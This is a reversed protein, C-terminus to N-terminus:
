FSAYKDGDLSYIKGEIGSKKLRIMWHEASELSRFYVRHDKNDSIAPCWYLYGERKKKAFIAKTQKEYKLRAQKKLEEFKQQCMIM